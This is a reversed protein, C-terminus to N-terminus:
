KPEQVGLTLDAASVDGKGYYLESEPEGRNACIRNRVYVRKTNLKRIAVARRGIEELSLKEGARVQWELTGIEANLIGLEIGWCITYGVFEGFEERIARSLAIAYEVNGHDYIVKRLEISYRDLLEGTTVRIRM